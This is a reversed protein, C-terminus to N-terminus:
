GAYNGAGLAHQEVMAAIDNKTL